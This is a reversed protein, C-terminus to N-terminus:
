CVIRTSRQVIANQRLREVIRDRIEPSEEAIAQLVTNQFQEIARHSYLSEYIDLSLKVQARIEKLVNLMLEKPDKMAVGNVSKKTGVRCLRFHREITKVADPDGQSWAMLLNLLYNASENARRLQALSDISEDVIQSGRRSALSQVTGVSLSKCAQTIASPTVGFHKACDIRSKGAVLM